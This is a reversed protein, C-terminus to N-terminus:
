RNQRSRQRRTTHEPWKGSSHGSAM